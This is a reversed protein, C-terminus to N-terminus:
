NKEAGREWGHDSSIATKYFNNMKREDYVNSKNNKDLQKKLNKTFDSINELVVTLKINGNSHILKIWGGTYRVSQFKIEEIGSYPIIEEFKNNYIIGEDNLIVNVYKFKSLFIISLILSEIGLIIVLM